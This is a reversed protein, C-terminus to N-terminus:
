KKFYKLTDKKIEKAMLSNKHIIVKINGNLNLLDIIDKPNLENINKNKKFFQDIKSMISSDIHFQIILDGYVQIDWQKAIGEVIKVHMGIKNEYSTSWKDLPTNSNCLCYFRNNQPNKINIEHEKKLIIM